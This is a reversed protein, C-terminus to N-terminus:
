TMGDDDSRSSGHEVRSARIGANAYKPGRSKSFPCAAVCLCFRPAINNQDIRGRDASGQDANAGEGNRM